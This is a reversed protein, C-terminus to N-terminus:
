RKTLNPKKTLRELPLTVKPPPVQPQAVDMDLCKYRKPDEGPEDDEREQTIELLVYEDQHGSHISEWGPM